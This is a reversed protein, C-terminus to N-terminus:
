LFSNKKLPFYTYMIDNVCKENLMLNLQEKTNNWKNIMIKLYKNSAKMIHVLCNVQKVNFPHMKYIYLNQLNKNFDLLTIQFTSISHVINYAYIIFSIAEELTGEIYRIKPYMKLLRDVVPNEHGNSLITIKEFKNENIIKQYFCLPPQAYHRNICSTFIDGSRIKIILENQKTDVKPINNVIEDRLIYLRNKCFDNQFKTYFLTKYDLILDIKIAQRYSYPLITIDYKKYHIPKKIISRLGFPSIINLCKIRECINILKNLIQLSNGVKTNQGFITTIETLNNYYFQKEIEKPSFFEKVFNFVKDKNKAKKKAKFIFHKKKESNQNLKQYITDNCITIYFFLIVM